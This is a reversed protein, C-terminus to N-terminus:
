DSALSRCVDEVSIGQREAAARVFVVVADLAHRWLDDVSWWGTDEPEAGATIMIAGQVCHRRKSHGVNGRAPDEPLMREALGDIELRDSRSSGCAVYADAAIDMLASAPDTSGERHHPRLVAAIDDIPRGEILADLVISRIEDDRTGDDATM